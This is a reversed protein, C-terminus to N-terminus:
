IGDDEDEDEGGELTGNLFYVTDVRLANAAAMIDEQVVRSFAERTSDISDSSGLLARGYYFSEMAGPSDTLQRYSNELSQKAATLEEETFNKANIRANFAVGGMYIADAGGSIAAALADPSGAPCLLEPLRQGM